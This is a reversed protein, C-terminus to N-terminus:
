NKIQEAWEDIEDNSASSSFRMGDSWVANSTLAQLAASSSGFPSSASTCFPIITKGSFDYSVVFTRMILPAEGWWLPYGLVIIDYQKINEVKNKIEPRISNDNHEKYCRSNEDNWDLDASTYSETPVIEFLDANLVDKLRNAVSATNGTASFYAILMKRNTDNTSNETSKDSKTELTNESASNQKEGATTQTKGCGTQALCLLAILTFSLILKFTKKM